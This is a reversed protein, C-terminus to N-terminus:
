SIKKPRGRPKKEKVEKLEKVETTAKKTKPKEQDEFFRINDKNIKKKKNNNMTSTRGLFQPFKIMSKKNCKSAAQITSLAVYPELEWNTMNVFHEFIDADSLADASYVINSLKKDEERIGLINNVYNEQVMLTHLDNSLWYLNYKDNITEDISIIKGTTEFINTSQINKKGNIMGFQLTNLMFRIDGNSQEYLEKIETEKININENVGINYLLRYIDQYRPKKLKIDYCYKLIPKISQDFRNDCICIVPVNSEKICETLSSIFGYDNGSDIDSFVLVNEQGDYTKKAKM